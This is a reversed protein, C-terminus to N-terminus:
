THLESTYLVNVNNHWWRWQEDGSSTEDQLVSVRYRNIVDMREVGLKKWWEVRDRHIQSSYTGWLLPIMTNTVKYRAIENRAYHEWPEDM